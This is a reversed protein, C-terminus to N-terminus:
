CGFLGLQKFYPTCAIDIGASRYSLSRGTNPSPNSVGARGSRTGTRVPPEEYVLVSSDVTSSRGTGSQQAPLSQIQSPQVQMISQRVSKKMYCNSSTSTNREDQTNRVQVKTMTDNSFYLKCKKESARWEIAKIDKQDDPVNSENIFQVCQSPHEIVKDDPGFQWYGSTDGENGDYDGHIGDKEIVIYKANAFRTCEQKDGLEDFDDLSSFQATVQTSGAVVGSLTWGEKDILKPQMAGISTPIKFYKKDGSDTQQLFVSLHWVKSAELFTEYHITTTDVYTIPRTEVKRDSTQTLSNDTLDNLDQDTVVFILADAKPDGWDAEETALIVDVKLM